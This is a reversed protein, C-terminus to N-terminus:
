VDLKFQLNVNIHININVGNGSSVSVGQYWIMARDIKKLYNKQKVCM